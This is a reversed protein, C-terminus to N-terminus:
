LVIFMKVLGKLLMEIQHHFWLLTVRGQGEMVEQVAEVLVVVQLVAQVVKVLQLPM